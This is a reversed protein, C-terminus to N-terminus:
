DVREARESRDGRLEALTNIEEQATHARKLTSLTRSSGAAKGERRVEEGQVRVSARRCDRGLKFAQEGADADADADAETGLIRVHQCRPTHTSACLSHKIAM